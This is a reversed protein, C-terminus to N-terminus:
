DLAVKSEKLKKRLTNRDINLIQATKRIQRGNQKFVKLIYRIQMEELTLHEDSDQKRTLFELISPPVSDCSIDSSEVLAALQHMILKLQRVNGPWSYAQLIDKFDRGIIKPLPSASGNSNLFYNALILIDQKRERLSPVKFEFGNLRYYLDNRFNHCKVENQLDKNTAAIIRVNAHREVNDGIRRYSGDQLFRLIKPQLDIHLEGIEDLFLTGRNAKEILGVQLGTSGTYAGKTAGFLTSELLTHPISSCNIKIYAKAALPSKAQLADAVLEKGTGTEGTILVPMDVVGAVKNIMKILDKITRSNGKILALQKNL